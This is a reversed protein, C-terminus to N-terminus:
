KMFRGYFRGGKNKIKKLTNIDDRVERSGRNDRLGGELSKPDYCYFTQVEFYGDKIIKWLGYYHDYHAHTLLLYVKKIKNRKLYAILKDTALGDGGDIILCYNGSIIVEVDGYRQEKNTMSYGAVWSRIAM